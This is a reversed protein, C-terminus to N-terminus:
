EGIETDLTAAPPPLASLLSEVRASLGFALDAAEESGEDAYVMSRERLLDRAAIVGSMSGARVGATYAALALRTECDNAHADTVGLHLKILERLTM